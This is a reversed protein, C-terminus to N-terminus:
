SRYSVPANTIPMASWTGCVPGNQGARVTGGKAFYVGREVGPFSGRDSLENLDPRKAMKRGQNAKAGWYFLQKQAVRLPNEKEYRRVWQGSEEDWKKSAEQRDYIDGIEGGAKWLKERAEYYEANIQDMEDQTYVRTTLVLETGADIYVDRREMREPMTYSLAITREDDSLEWKEGTVPRVM